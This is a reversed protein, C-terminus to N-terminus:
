KKKNRRYGLRYTDNSRSYSITGDQPMSGVMVCPVYDEQVFTVQYIYPGTALLRGTQSVPYVKATIWAAGTEGYLPNQCSNPHTTKAPGGLAESLMDITVVQQYQNVFHGLHYFIRINM